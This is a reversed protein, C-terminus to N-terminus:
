LTPTVILSASIPAAAIVEVSHEGRGTLGWCFSGSFTLWYFVVLSSLHVVCFLVSDVGTAARKVTGKM